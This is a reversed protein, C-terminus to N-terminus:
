DFVVNWKQIISFRENEWRFKIFKLKVLLANRLDDSPSYFTKAPQLHAFLNIIIPFLYLTIKNAGLSYTFKFFSM